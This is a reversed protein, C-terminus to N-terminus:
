STRPRNTKNKNPQAEKTTQTTTISYERVRSQWRTQKNTQKHRSCTTKKWQTSTTLVYDLLVEHVANHTMPKRLLYLGDTKSHQALWTVSTARQRGVGTQARHIWRVGQPTHQSISQHGLICFMVISGLRKRQMPSNCEHDHLCPNNTKEVQCTM